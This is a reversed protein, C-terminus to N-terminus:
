QQEQINMDTTTDSFANQMRSEAKKNLTNTDLLLSNFHEELNEESMMANMMGNNYRSGRAM